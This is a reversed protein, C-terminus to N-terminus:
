PHVEQESKWSVTIPGDHSDLAELHPEAEIPYEAGASYNLQEAIWMGLVDAPVDLGVEVEITLTTM